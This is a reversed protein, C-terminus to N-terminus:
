ATSEGFIARLVTEQSAEARPLDTVTRGRRMVVVRDALALIERLESSILIIGAGSEALEGILRYIEVKSGVDIGQTPEDFILVRAKTALWKSLVVKQQNGGSLQMVQSRLSPTRIKLRDVFQGAVRGMEEFNLWSRRLSPLMINEQVSLLQFLGDRHRDEPLLALGSRVAIDPSSIKVPHGRLHIEGHSMRLAGVLAKALETRGSGVLGAVGVIEGARLRLSVDELVGPVTLHEVRLLDDGIPVTKKPFMERVDRGVMMQILRAIPTQGSVTAVNRGDRLVTVREAIENIEDLKHTIYIVGKGAARVTELLEFLRAAERATLKDTPEDMILIETGRLLVKAIEILQQKALSLQEVPVDPDLDLGVDRLAERARAAMGQRDLWGMPGATREHGLFLNQTVSLSPVLSLGQYATGVGLSRASLPTFDRVDTGRIRVSGSTPSYVGSIIKILTSKGAGNEGLLAHIEGPVLDFNVRDLAVVGPFRKTIDRLSVLPQAATV